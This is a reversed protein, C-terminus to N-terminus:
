VLGSKKGKGKWDQAKRPRASDLLTHINESKKTTATVAGGTIKMKM